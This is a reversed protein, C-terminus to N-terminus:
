KGLLPVEETLAIMAKCNINWSFINKTLLNNSGM